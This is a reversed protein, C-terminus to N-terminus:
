NTARRIAWAHRQRQKFRDLDICLLSVPSGSRASALLAQSLRDDFLARNPLGTLGDHLALHRAHAESEHLQRSARGLRMFLFGLVGLWLLGILAIAPLMRVMLQWGPRDPTWSLWGLDRGGGDRIPVSMRASDQPPAQTFAADSLEFPRAIRAAMTADLYKVAVHLYATGEAADRCRTDPIIPAVSVLALKDGLDIYDTVSVPPAAVSPHPPVRYAALTEARLRGVLPAILPEVAAYDAPAIISRDVAAYIAKYDPGFM